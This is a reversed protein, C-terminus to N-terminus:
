FPQAIHEQYLYRRHASGKRKATAGASKSNGPREHAYKHERLAQAAKVRAAENTIIFWKKNTDRKLFNGGREKVWDVVQQSLERQVADTAGRYADRLEGVKDYYPQFGAHLRPGTGRGLIVDKDSPEDVYTKVTPELAHRRPRNEEHARSKKRKRSAEEQKIQEMRQIITMSAFQDSRAATEFPQYSSLSEDRKIFEEEISSKLPKFHNTLLDQQQQIYADTEQLHVKRGAASLTIDMPMADDSPENPLLSIFENSRPSNLSGLMSTISFDGSLNLRFADSNLSSERSLGLAQNVSSQRSLVPGVPYFLQSMRSELSDNSKLSGRSAQMLRFNNFFSDRSAISSNRSVGAAARSPAPPALPELSVATVSPLASTVARSYEEMDRDNPSGMSCDRDLPSFLRLDTTEVPFDCYTCWAEWDESQAITKINAIHLSPEHASEDLPTLTAVMNTSRSYNQELKSNGSTDLQV